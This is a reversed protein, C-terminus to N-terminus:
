RTTAASGPLVRDWVEALGELEGESLHDVFRRRVGELHTPRAELLRHRGLTTLGALSGRADGPCEGREVFGERELRDVLRTCGSRSLLVSDALESMRMQMHPARDLTMLVEYWTLPLRHRLELEADLDRVLASHVRLLGRWAALETDSLRNPLAGAHMRTPVAEETRNSMCSFDVLLYPSHRWVFTPDGM